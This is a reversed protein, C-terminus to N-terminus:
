KSKPKWRILDFAEEPNCGIDLLKKIIQQNTLTSELRLIEDIQEQKSKPNQNKM